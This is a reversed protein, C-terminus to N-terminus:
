LGDSRNDISPFLQPTGVPDSEETDTVREDDGSIGTGQVSGSFEQLGNQGNAGGESLRDAAFNVRSGSM